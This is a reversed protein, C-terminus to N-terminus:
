SPLLFSTFFKCFALLFLAFLTCFPFYLFNSFNLNLISVEGVPGGICWEHVKCFM